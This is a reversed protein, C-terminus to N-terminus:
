RIAGDVEGVIRVAGIGIRLNLLLQSTYPSDDFPLRFIVSKINLTPTGNRGKWACCRPKM